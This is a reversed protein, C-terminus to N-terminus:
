PLLIFKHYKLCYMLFVSFFDKSSEIKFVSDLLEIVISSQYCTNVHTHSCELMNVHKCHYTSCKLNNPLHFCFGVEVFFPSSSYFRVLHKCWAGSTTHFSHTTVARWGSYCQSLCNDSSFNRQLICKYLFFFIKSTDRKQKM